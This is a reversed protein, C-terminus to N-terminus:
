SIKDEPVKEDWNVVLFFKLLQEILWTELWWWRCVDDCSCRCLSVDGFVWRWTQKKIDTTEHWMEQFCIKLHLNKNLLNAPPAKLSWAQLPTLCYPICSQASPPYQVTIYSCCFGWGARCSIQLQSPGESNGWNLKSITTIDTLKEGEAKHVKRIITLLTNWVWTVSENELM